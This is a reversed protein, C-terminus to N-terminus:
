PQREKQTWGGLVGPRPSHWGPCRSTRVYAMVEPRAAVVRERRGQDPTASWRAPIDPNAITSSAGTNNVVHLIGGNGHTADLFITLLDELSGAHQGDV